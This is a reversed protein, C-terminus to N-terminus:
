IIVTKFEAGINKYGSVAESLMERLLLLAEIKNKHASKYRKYEAITGTPIHTVKVSHDITNIDVKIDSSAIFITNRPHVM